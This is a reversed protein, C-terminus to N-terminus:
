KWCSSTTSNDTGSSDKTSQVGAQNVILQACETDQTQSGIATATLTFTGAGGSLDPTEIKYYGHGIPNFTSYGVDSAASGYANTTSYLKEERGAIDMLATKAETRRSKRISNQYSPLAIAALISVVVVAIMLEVLTFGAAASRQHRIRQKM